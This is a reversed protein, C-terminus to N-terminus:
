YLITFVHLLSPSSNSIVGPLTDNGSKALFVGNPLKFEHNPCGDEKVCQYSIDLEKLSPIVLGPDLEIIQNRQLNITELNPMHNFADTEIVKVDGGAIKLVKLKEM